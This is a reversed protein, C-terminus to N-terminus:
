RRKASTRKTKRACPTKVRTNFDRRAGNHGDMQVTAVHSKPASCLNIRSKATRTVTLIGNRGGAINLNFKTVPADPVAAFTNVLRGDKTTSSTGKLNVAIEGRLAVVLMPLTRILNGRANRRVNKVFYVNGALPKDLIPTTAKVRGVISGKPCHKEIDPKTGDTFECLAQANAPDLALSKPLKVVAKEIGAAGIGKQTVTAKVGPHGGTKTQKKGTLALALKPAFGLESCDGVRFRDAVNATAGHISRVKGAIQMQDCSTPNLMFGARDIATRIEQIQLPIGALITPLPDTKVTVHADVPDVYLAARVVVTGLDFPGAVAPTVVALSFPAGKYPGAFYVKGTQVFFPSPGVGSGVTASGLLSAAPCSPNAIQGQGAGVATNISAIAAESCKPVGALKAAVGKPLDLDFGELAQDGDPRTLKVVFPSSAGAKPSTVGASLSPAFRRAAPNASPCGGGNAGSTIEFSSTATVPAGGAWPTLQAVTDYSGCGAPTTLPARVGERFHLRFHSFPLQPIDDATATLRGTVPDPDVRAPQKVIIGLNPNRVVIYFALLSGFPNDGQKAAYLSGSLPEPLLPTEVEVSGIKSAEPCGAGPASGVKERALDAQSCAALGGAVSPNVAVGEPLTVVTKKIDSQALGDPATLGEDDVDLSFDLGSSSNAAKTSPAASITPSFGLRECGTIGLSNAPTANDHTLVGGNVFTGPNEWSNAVFTTELPGSCSRPLTLFPRSAEAPCLGFSDGSASLCRGRIPDHRPDAPNGWLTLESFFVKLIQPTNKLSAIVNYGGGDKVGINVTVLESSLNFGLTAAVGPPPDLNYVPAWSSSATPIHIIARVTGVATDDDCNAVGTGVEPRGTAFDVSSCRPYATADGVLGLIQEFDADKLSEFVLGSEDQSYDVNFSTTMEFPHSGAQTAPTGDANKFTVDFSNLGFAANASATGVAACALLMAAAAVAAAVVTRISNQRSFSM